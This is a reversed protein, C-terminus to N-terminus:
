KKENYFEEIKAKIQEIMEKNLEKDILQMEEAIYNLTETLNEWTTSRTDRLKSYHQLLEKTDPNGIIYEKFNEETQLDLLYKRANGVIFSMKFDGISPRFKKLLSQNKNYILDLNIIVSDKTALSNIRHTMEKKKRKKKNMRDKVASYIFFSLLLAIVVGFIIWMTSSPM